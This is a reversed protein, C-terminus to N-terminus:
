GTLSTGFRAMRAEDPCQPILCSHHTWPQGHHKTGQKTPPRGTGGADARGVVLEIEPQPCPMVRRCRCGLMVRDPADGAAARYLLHQDASVALYLTDANGSPLAFPFLPPLKPRVLIPNHCNVHATRRRVSREDERGLGFNASRPPPVRVRFMRGLPTSASYAERRPSSPGQVVTHDPWKSRISGAPFYCSRAMVRCARFPRRAWREAVAHDRELTGNATATRVKLMLHAGRPSWRMHQQANMRRHLLWQVTSETVATSIPENEPAAGHRLRHHYGITWLYIDRSRAVSAGSKARCGGRLEHKQAYISDPISWSPQGFFNSTCSGVM